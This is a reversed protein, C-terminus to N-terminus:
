WRGHLHKKLRSYDKTNIALQTLYALYSEELGKESEINLYMKAKNFIHVNAGPQINHMSALVEVIKTACNEKEDEEILEQRMEKLGNVFGELSSYVTSLAILDKLYKIKDKKDM